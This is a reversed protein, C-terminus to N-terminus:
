TNERNFPDVRVPKDSTIKDLPSLKSIVNNSKDILVIDANKDKEFSFKNYNKGFKEETYSCIQFFGRDVYGYAFVNSIGKREYILPDKLNEIYNSIFRELINAVLYAEKQHSPRKPNSIYQSLDNNLHEELGQINAGSGILYVKNKELEILSAGNGQMYDIYFSKNSNSSKEIIFGLSKLHKGNDIIPTPSVAYERLINIFEEIFNESKICKLRPLEREFIINWGTVDGALYMGVQNGIDLFKFANDSQTRTSKSVITTRFDNVFVTRNPEYSYAAILTM